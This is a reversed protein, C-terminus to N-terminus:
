TYLLCFREKCFKCRHCKIDWKTCRNSVPIRTEYCITLVSLM